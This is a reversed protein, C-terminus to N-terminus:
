TPLTLGSISSVCSVVFCRQAGDQRREALVRRLSLGQCYRMTRHVPTLLEGRRRQHRWPHQRLQPAQLWERRQMLGVVERGNAGDRGQLRPQGLNGAEVRGEVGPLGPHHLRERQRLLDAPGPHLAVTEVTQRVFVDRAHKRSVEARGDVALDDDRLLAM